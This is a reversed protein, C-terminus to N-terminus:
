RKIIKIGIHPIDNPAGAVYLTGWDSRWLNLPPLKYEHGCYTWYLEAAQLIRVMENLVHPMDKFQLVDIRDTHKVLELKLTYSHYNNNKADLVIAGTDVVNNNGFIDTIDKKLIIAWLQKVILESLGASTQLAQLKQEDTLKTEESDGNIFSM